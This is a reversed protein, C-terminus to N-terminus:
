LRIKDLLIKYAKELSNKSLFIIHNEEKGTLESSLYKDLDLPLIKITKGTKEKAEKYFEYIKDGIHNSPDEEMLIRDYLYLTIYSNKSGYINDINNYIQSADYLNIKISGLELLRGPINYSIKGIKTDLDINIDKKYEKLEGIGLNEGIYRIYERWWDTYFDILKIEGEVKPIYPFEEISIKRLLDDLRDPNIYIDEIKYNGSKLERSSLNTVNIEPNIIEEGIFRPKAYIGKEPNKLSFQDNGWQLIHIDGGLDRLYLIFELTELHFPVVQRGM